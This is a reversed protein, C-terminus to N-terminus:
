RSGAARSVRRSSPPPEHAESVARHQEDFRYVSRSGDNRTVHTEAIARGEGVYTIDLEYRPVSPGFMAVNAVVRGAEDFQNSVMRGPETVGILQNRTNYAYRRVIGDSSEARVLRNHDDYTYDVQRGLTDSVSDVRRRDDYQFWISAAGSRMELLRGDADRHYIARNGAADWRELVSCDNPPCDAFAAGSGDRFTMVWRTGNWRLSAADFPDSGTHTLVADAQTNGPSVREFHVRGGNALILDAWPIRPDGNGYLWWEGPHTAGLGFPRAMDDGSEYTRRLVLPFPAPVVLDDDERIYLGMALDVYGKHLPPELRPQIDSSEEPELSSHDARMACSSTALALAIALAARRSSRSLRRKAAVVALLAIVVVIVQVPRRRFPQWPDRVGVTGATAAKLAVPDYAIGEKFVIEVQRVDSIRAAPNGRVVVLDAQKGAAITGIRENEGLATAGNSTAVRIAAEPALGAAVLLELERQDGLGAVVGGWGTPDVGALLRGGAAVFRREFEMERKLMASWMRATPSAPNSWLPRASIYHELLAPALLAPLAPDFAAERGTLSEFIALTSTVSVGRRVLLALTQQVDTSGVDMRALESVFAGQEPCEDPKKGSYFETDVALGHELTDIGLMAAQRFGVACLHGTVRLGRAHATAIAAKLEAPRLGTYVKISTAGRDAQAAVARAIREADPAGDLASLYPGTLHITPGAEQGADIRAKLRADEDFDVAGATRITTVGSALYLRAFPTQANVVLHGATPSELEYFLHEHMGVLGPIVTRGELDLTAAGEPIRVDGASGTAAIRGHEILLTQNERSPGGTGDIVRVHQLAVVPPLSRVFARTGSGVNCSAALLSVAAMVAVPLRTAM